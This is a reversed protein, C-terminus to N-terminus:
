ASRLGDVCLILIREALASAIHLDMEETAAAQGAQRAAIEQVVFDLQAAMPGPLGSPDIRSLHTRWAAQLRQDLPKPSTALVSVAGILREMAETSHM